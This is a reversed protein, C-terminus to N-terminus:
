SPPQGDGSTPASLPGFEAEYEKLSEIAGAIHEETTDDGRGTRELLVQLGLQRLVEDAAVKAQVADIKVQGKHATEKAVATAVAAQQKVKDMFGM